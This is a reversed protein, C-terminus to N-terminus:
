KLATSVLYKVQIIIDFSVRINLLITMVTSTSNFTEKGFICIAIFHYNVTQRM